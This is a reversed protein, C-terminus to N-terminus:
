INRKNMFLKDYSLYHIVLYKLIYHINDTDNYISIIYDQFQNYLNVDILFNYTISYSDDNYDDLYNKLYKKTFKNTYNDNIYNLIINEILNYNSDRIKKDFEFYKLLYQKNIKMRVVYNKNKYTDFKINSSNRAIDNITSTYKKCYNCYSYLHGDLVTDYISNKSLGSSIHKCISCKLNQSILYVM